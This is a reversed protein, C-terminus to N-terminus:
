LAVRWSIREGAMAESPVVNYSFTKGGDTSMGAQVIHMPM